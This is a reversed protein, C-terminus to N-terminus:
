VIREFCGFVGSLEVRIGVVFSGDLGIEIFDGVFLM